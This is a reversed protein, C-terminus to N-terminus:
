GCSMCCEPCIPKRRPSSVEVAKQAKWETGVLAWGAEVQAWPRTLLAVVLPQDRQSPLSLGPFLPLRCAGAREATGCGASARAAECLAPSLQILVTVLTVLATGAERVGRKRTQLQSQSTLKIAGM